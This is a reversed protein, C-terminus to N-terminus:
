MYIYLGLLLFWGWGSIDFYALIGGIVFCVIGTVKDWSIKYV